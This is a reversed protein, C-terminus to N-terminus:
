RGEILEGAQHILRDLAPNNPLLFAALLEPLARSGAWQDYALVDIAHNVRTVASEASSLEVIM